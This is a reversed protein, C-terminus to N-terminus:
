RNDAMGNNDDNNDTSGRHHQLSQEQEAIVKEVEAAMTMVDSDRRRPRLPFPVEGRERRFQGFKQRAEHLTRDSKELANYATDLAVQQATSDNRLRMLAKWKEQHDMMADFIQRLQLGQVGFGV